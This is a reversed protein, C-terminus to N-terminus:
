FVYIHQFSYFYSKFSLNVTSALVLLSKFPMTEYTTASTESSGVVEMKVSITLCVMNMSFM